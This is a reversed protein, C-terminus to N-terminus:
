NKKVNLNQFKLFYSLYEIETIRRGSIIKNCRNCTDLTTGDRYVSHIERHKKVHFCIM